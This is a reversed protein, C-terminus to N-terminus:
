DVRSGGRLSIVAAPREQHVGPLGAATTGDGRRASHDTALMLRRMQSLQRTRELARGAWFAVVFVCLAFVAHQAAHLLEAQDAATM